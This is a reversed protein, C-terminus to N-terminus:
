VSKETPQGPKGAYGLYEPALINFGLDRVVRFRPQEWTVNDGSGHFYLVWLNAASDVPLSRIVWAFLPVQEVNGIQVTEPQLGLEVRLPVVPFDRAFVLKHENLKLWACTGVYVALVVCLITIAALRAWHSVRM